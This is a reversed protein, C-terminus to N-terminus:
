SRTRPTRMALPIGFWLLAFVTLLSGAILAPVVNGRLIMHAILYVDLTLALMLPMMALMLLRGAYDVFQRSVLNPEAQRHYAAPAMLLAVALCVLVLAALHIERQADTLREFFPANFVAILQFGFLAQVGPLVMRCEELLHDVSKELSEPNAARRLARVVQPM